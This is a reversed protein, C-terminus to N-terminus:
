LADDDKFSENLGSHTPKVIEEKNKTSVDIEPQWFTGVNDLKINEKVQENQDVVKQRKTNENDDVYDSHKRKSMSRTVMDHTENPSRKNM